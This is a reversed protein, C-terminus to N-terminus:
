SAKEEEKPLKTPLEDVWKFISDFKSNSVKYVLNDYEVYMYYGKEEEYEKGFIVNYRSDDEQKIFVMYHSPRSFGYRSSKSLDELTNGINDIVEQTYVNTVESLFKNVETQDLKIENKGKVLVWQFEKKVPKTTDEEAQETIKEVKKIQLENGNSVLAAIKLEEKDLKVANLDIFNSTQFHTLTDIQNHVGLASLINKDVAYIKEKGAYRVFGTNYDEGKKGIIVNALPKQTNDKMIVHIGSQDTIKFMEQHKPDSSRVKGTMELMDDIIRNISYDKVKANFKTPMYWQDDRKVFMMRAEEGGGTQKYVEIEKVDDKSVGIIVSQVIDDYNVTSLRPKTVFYIVLLVLFAGGLYYLHKEKM